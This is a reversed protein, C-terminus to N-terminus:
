RVRKISFFRISANRPTCIPMPSDPPNDAAMSRSVNETRCVYRGTSTVTSVTVPVSTPM